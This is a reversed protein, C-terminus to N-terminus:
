PCGGSTAHVSQQLWDAMHDLARTADDFSGSAPEAALAVAVRYGNLSVVGFQRVLYHGTTDPGWGGKFVASPLRGLGWQQSPDIQAMEQSVPQDRPSCALASAFTTQDTLSWLTQGFPTYPPRTRQPQTRTQDDGHDALVADVADAAPRGGGLLSWLQEAAQNDSGTLARHVQQRTTESDSRALAALSLPVKMTSWAPGTEWAGLRTVAGGLPAYALGASRLRLTRSLQAFGNVLDAAPM